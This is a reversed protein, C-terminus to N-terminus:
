EDGDNVYITAKVPDIEEQEPLSQRRAEEPSIGYYNVYATYFGNYSRYGIQNAIDTLTAKSTTIMLHAVEMRRRTVLKKYNEGMIEQVVVRTQRESLFLKKALFSINKENVYEGAIHEEIMWKRYAESLTDPTPANAAIECVDDEILECAHLIASVLLFGQQSHAYRLPRDSLARFQEMMSSIYPDDFIKVTDLQGLTSRLKLYAELTSGKDEADFEFQIKFCFRTVDDSHLSHVVKEPILCFQGQQLVTCDEKEAVRINVSGQYVYHAEWAYHMHAKQNVNENCQPVNKSARIHFSIGGTRAAFDFTNRYSEM